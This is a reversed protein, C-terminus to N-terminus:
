GFHVAMCSTIFSLENARPAEDFKYILKEGETISLVIRAELEEFKRVPLDVKTFLHLPSNIIYKNIDNFTINNKHAIRILMNYITKCAYKIQVGDKRVILLIDIFHVEQKNLLLTVINEM